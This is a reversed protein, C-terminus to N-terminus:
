QDDDRRRQGEAFFGIRVDSSRKWGPRRRIRVLLLASILFAAIALFLCLMAITSWTDTASDTLTGAGAITPVAARHGSGDSVPLTASFMGAVAATFVISGAFARDLVMARQVLGLPGLCFMACLGCGALGVVVGEVTRDVLAVVLALSTTIALAM